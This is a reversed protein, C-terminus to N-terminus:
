SRTSERAHKGSCYGWIVRFLWDGEQFNPLTLFWFFIYNPNQVPRWVLTWEWMINPSFGSCFDHHAQNWNQFLEIYYSTIQYMWRHVSHRCSIDLHAYMCTHLQCCLDVVNIPPLLSYELLPVLPRHGLCPSFSFWCPLLSRQWLPRSQNGCSWVWCKQM